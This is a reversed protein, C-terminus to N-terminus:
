IPHLRLLPAESEKFMPGQTPGVTLLSHREKGSLLTETECRDPARNGNRFTRSNKAPLNICWGVPYPEKLGLNQTRGASIINQKCADSIQIYSVSDIEGGGSM